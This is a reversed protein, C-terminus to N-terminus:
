IYQYIKLKKFKNQAVQQDGQIEVAETTENNKYSEEVRSPLLM